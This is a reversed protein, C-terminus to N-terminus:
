SISDPYACRSRAQPLFVKLHSSFYLDSQNLDVLNWLVPIFLPQINKFVHCPSAIFLARLQDKKRLRILMYRVSAYFAVM